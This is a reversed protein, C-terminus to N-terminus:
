KILYLIFQRVKGPTLSGQERARGVYLPEGESTNGAVIANPPISSECCDVWRICEPRACLVQLYVYIVTSNFILLTTKSDEIPIKFFLIYSIM